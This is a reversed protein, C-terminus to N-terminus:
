GAGDGDDSSGSEPINELSPCENVPHEDRPSSLEIFPRLRELTKLGIGEANLLAEPQQFPRAQIIRNATVEGLGPLRMHEDLAATNPNVKAGSDLKSPGSAIALEDNEQCEAAREGPLLDWNTKAWAGTGRKAAQLELDQLYARYDSASKGAPTERDVGSARAHDLRVLREALDEGDATTVFAYIRKYRCDGRADADATHVQFPRKLM